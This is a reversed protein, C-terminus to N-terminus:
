AAVGGKRTKAPIVEKIEAISVAPLFKIFLLFWMGFWAFSGATIGYEIITPRYLTLPWRWPEFSHALSQVIIVFREYWMGVNIFLSIVFVAAINTRIKKWWLLLPILCNCLVMIGFAWGYKGFARDYFVMREHDSPGYWAMFMEVVYAYFVITSTLMILKACMEFHWPTIYRELRFAKRVPVLLTIVMAVGSFIAGAVFYPAFITSHWGPNLSMAFDWSVVSHVSFVLPTAFAAFYLYAANYHRWQRNTGRWGLSLLRYVTRRIPNTVKDRAAALDPILGTIFFMASVTFYTSVAFVDWILPSRFNPWVGAKVQDYPLLWYFFWPRGLHILPFLGATMVAFVTMAEAVRYISRRFRARFLYLVASVLTGCHAIGVWFVFNTIYVAWMIPPQYGAVGLGKRIQIIECILGFALVALDAALLIYWLATPPELMRLIDRNVQRHTVAVPVGPGAPREVDATTAASM